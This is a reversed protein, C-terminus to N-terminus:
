GYIESNHISDAIEETSQRKHSLMWEFVEKNAYTDSWANHSNEPYITLKACGGAKNVANVMRESEEVFVVDDKAGHFAWIPTNVLREAFAYIGGGCIPAIAAFYEPMSMALQWTAYGGMSAGILYIRDEDVYELAAIEKVM